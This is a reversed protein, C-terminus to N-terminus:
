SQNVSFPVAGLCTCGHYESCCEWCCCCCCCDFDEYPVAEAIWVMRISSGTQEFLHSVGGEFGGVARRNNGTHEYTYKVLIKLFLVSVVMVAIVEVVLVTLTAGKRGTRGEYVSGGQPRVKRFFVVISHVTSRIVATAAEM